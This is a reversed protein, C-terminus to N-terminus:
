VHSKYSRDPIRVDVLVTLQRQSVPWRMGSDVFLVQSQIDVTCLDAVTGPHPLTSEPLLIQRLQEAGRTLIGDLGTRVGRSLYRYVRFIHYHAIRNQPDLLLITAITSLNYRRRATALQRIKERIPSRM